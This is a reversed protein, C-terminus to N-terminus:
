FEHFSCYEHLEEHKKAPVEPNFTARRDTLIYLSISFLLYGSVLTISHFV